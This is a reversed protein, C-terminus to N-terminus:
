EADEDDLDLDPIDEDEDEEEPDKAQLALIDADSLDKIELTPLSKEDVDAAIDLIGWRLEKTRGIVMSLRQLAKFDADFDGPNKGGDAIEKQIKITARQLLDTQMDLLIKSREIKGKRKTEFSETSAAAVSAAATTVAATVKAKVLHAKSGKKIVRGTRAKVRAIRNTLASTSIGFKKLLEPTPTEGLEYLTEFEAWEAETLRRRAVPAAPDAAAEEATLEDDVIEKEPDEGGPVTKESM